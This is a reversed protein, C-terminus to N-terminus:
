SNCVSVYFGKGFVDCTAHFQVGIIKNVTSLANLLYILFFSSYNIDFTNSAM